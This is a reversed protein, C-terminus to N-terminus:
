TQPEPKADDAPPAYNPNGSADTFKLGFAARNVLDLTTTTGQIGNQEYTMGFVYLEMEGGEVPFLMPSKVTLKEKLEWLSSGGPKLWGQHTVSVQVAARNMAAMEMNARTNLEKQTLPEEALVIRKFGKIGDPMKGKASIEAAKRGFLSDSGQAQSRAITEDVEMMSIMSTAAVINVGEELVVNSPKDPAGATVTGDAAM